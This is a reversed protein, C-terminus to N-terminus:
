GKKNKNKFYEVERLRKEAESKTTERGLVKGTHSVVEYGKKTKKIM